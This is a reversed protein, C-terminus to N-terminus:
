DIHPKFSLESGLCKFLDVKTLPSSDNFHIDLDSSNIRHCRKFFAMSCTRRNISSMNIKTLGIRYHTLIQNCLPSFIHFILTRLTSLLTMPMFSFSLTHALKPLDNIFVSSCLVLISGQPVGKDVVLYYSNLGQFSVYQRRNHLYSNFWFLTKM